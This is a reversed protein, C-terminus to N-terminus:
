GGIQILYKQVLEEISKAITPIASKLTPSLENGHEVSAIEVGIFNIESPLTDPELINMLNITELIGIGHGSYTHRTQFENLDNILYIDGPKKFGKVADVIIIVDTKQFIRVLDIIPTEIFEVCISPHKATNPYENMWYRVAELGVADDGRYPYGVALVLIKM